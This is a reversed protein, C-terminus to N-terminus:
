VNAARRTQIKANNDNAPKREEQPKERLANKVTRESVGFWEELTKVPVGEGHLRRIDAHRQAKYIFGCNAPRLIEGGFAAVLKSADKWGILKVLAHDAKLRKPVYLIVQERKGGSPPYCRPLQGILFLARERGIVDAIEQVSDPLRM